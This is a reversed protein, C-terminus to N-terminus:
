PPPSTIDSRRARVVSWILWLVFCLQAVAFAGVGILLLHKLISWFIALYDPM